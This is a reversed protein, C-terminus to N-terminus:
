EKIVVKQGEVDKNTFVAKTPGEQGPAADVAREELEKVRDALLKVEDRDTERDEKMKKCLNNYLDLFGQKVREDLIDIEEGIMEKVTEESMEEADRKAGRAPRRSGGAM